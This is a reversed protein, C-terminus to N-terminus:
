RNVGSGLLLDERSRGLLSESCRGLLCESSRGLLCENSRGGSLGGVRGGRSNGLLAGGLAWGAGSILMNLMRALEKMDIKVIKTMM